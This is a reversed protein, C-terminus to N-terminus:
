WPQPAPAGRLDIQWELLRVARAPNTQALPQWFALGKLMGGEPWNNTFWVQNLYNTLTVAQDIAELTERGGPAPHWFAECRNTWVLPTDGSWLLTVRAVAQTAWGPVFTSTRGGAGDKYIAVADAPFVPPEAGSQDRVNGGACALDGPLLRLRRPECGPVNTHTYTRPPNMLNTIDLPGAAFPVAILFPKRTPVLPFSVTYDGADLPIAFAGNTTTVMRAPGASLGAAGILVDAAPAVLMPTDLPRLSIDTLNGTVTAAGAAVAGHLAVMAALVLTIPPAAGPSGGAAPKTRGGRPARPRPLRLALARLWARVFIALTFIM